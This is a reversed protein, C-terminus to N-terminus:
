FWSEAQVGFAFGMTDDGYTNPAVLGKFDEGWTAMTAFLRIEPRGFFTNGAKVTPAITFKALYDSPGFESDVYDFGADFTLALYQNFHYMPRLGFTLWNLKSNAAAGCDSLQYMVEYGLSFSDVPQIMGFDLIRLRSSDQVLYKGFDAPNALTEVTPRYNSVFDSSSGMGYQLVLTNSGGLFEPSTWVLAGAFGSVSETPGTLATGDAAVANNLDGGRVASGQLWVMLKGFPLAADYWRLDINHKVPFGHVTLLSADTTSGGIYALALKGFGVDLDDFGGGFGSMNLWFFDEIHVDLRKYYRQGAWVKLEPKAAIFHGAEIFAERLFIGDTDGHNAQQAYYALMVETRFTASNKEPNLWHNVFVAEGWTETENGLRYKANYVGADGAGPAAFAEQHGAEGNIGFGTRFYGHYEFPAFPAAPPEEPKVEAPVALPAASETVAAQTQDVPKAAEQALVGTFWVLALCGLGAVILRKSGSSSKM